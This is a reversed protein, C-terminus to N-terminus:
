DSLLPVLESLEQGNALSLQLGSAMPDDLPLEPCALRLNISSNALRVGVVGAADSQLDVLADSRNNFQLGIQGLDGRLCPRLQDVQLRKIQGLRSALLVAGSAGVDAAGVIAEGPLLRMLMPGQANRGMLPLNSDNVTLRLMRATSSAIVVEGGERCIVVRQLQVGEKLKLVTTARGSLEQFDDLPLRKFRGDSSLLGLSVGDGTPLPLVQVVPDGSIGDPL